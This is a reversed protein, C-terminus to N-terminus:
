AINVDMGLRHAAEYSATVIGKTEPKILEAVPGLQLRAAGDRVAEVAHARAM